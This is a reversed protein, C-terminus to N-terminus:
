VKCIICYRSEAAKLLLDDLESELDTTEHTFVVCWKMSSDFVYLDHPLFASADYMNQEALRYFDYWEQKIRAALTYADAEAIFDVLKKGQYYIDVGKETMFFVQGSHEKLFALATEMSVGAFDRNMRDWMYDKEYWDITIPYNSEAMKDIWDKEKVQFEEWSMVFRHIFADRMKETNDLLKIDM